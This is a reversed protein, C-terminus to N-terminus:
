DSKMNMFDAIFDATVSKMFRGKLARFNQQRNKKTQLRCRIKRSGEGTRDANIQTIQPHKPKKTKPWAGGTDSNCIGAFIQLQNCM